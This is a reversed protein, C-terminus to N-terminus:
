DSVNNIKKFFLKKEVLGVPCCKKGQQGKEVNWNVFKTSIQVFTSYFSLFHFVKPNKTVKTTVKLNKRLSFVATIKGSFGVSCHTEAKNFTKLM